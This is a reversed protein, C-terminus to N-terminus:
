VPPPLVQFSTNGEKRQSNKSSVEYFWAGINPRMNAPHYELPVYMYPAWRLLRFLIARASAPQLPQRASDEWIAIDVKLVQCGEVWSRLVARAFSCFLQAKFCCM